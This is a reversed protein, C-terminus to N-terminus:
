NDLFPKYQIKDPKVVYFLAGRNEALESFHAKM